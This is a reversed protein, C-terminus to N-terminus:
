ASCKRAPSDQFPRVLSRWYGVTFPFRMFEGDLGSPGPETEPAGFRGSPNVPVNVLRYMSVLSGLREGGRVVVLVGGDDSFLRNEAWERRWRRTDRWGYWGFEGTQALDDGTLGELMALDDEVVPRLAIQDAM